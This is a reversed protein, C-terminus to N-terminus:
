AAAGRRSRPFKLGANAASRITARVSREGDDVILGNRHCADILGHFVEANDLEGGAVLQYLRFATRNLAHNRGGPATAALAAIERNLAASGYAKTWSGASSDTPPRIAAVARESISPKKRVLEILWNPSVALDRPDGSWSYARATVSPPVVVYGGDGRTDVHPAIRSATSPVPGTYRFWMHRGGRPTIVTRTTPLPGHDAELGGIEDEGGPDIDLVWFGSISGTPIGINRDAIRWLRKITEPNATASHFGRAIAPKKGRPALPFVPMGAAAYGLAANLLRTM